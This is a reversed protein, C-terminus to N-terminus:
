EFRVSVLKSVGAEEMTVGYLAKASEMTRKSHTVVIFQTKDSMEDIKNVFRGINAEDLPADVEDLLCFPSPRYKFIGMVLAIASLAKEGGSLLMVSQLRKGPPQAVVEIGADLIDEAELLNMEGKGGGFLEVFFESFNANIKEFADRFRERSRTKIERLAEDASKISDIIDQRQSTLFLFREEVEGLEELALLNVAGYSELRQRLEDLRARGTEYEFDEAFEVTAALEELTQSLEQQCTERLNELRTTVEAQTIELDGRANRAAAANHNLETLNDSMRDASSRATKLKESATVLEEHERAQDEEVLAIKESLATISATTEEIKSETERREFTQRAIRSELEIQEVEIRRLSSVLARGREAAAAATARKESLDASEREVENRIDNLNANIQTLADAALVRSSEAERADFETKQSRERVSQIEQATQEIEDAVVKSHREAREVEQALNKAEIEQAFLDREFGTIETKLAAAKEEKEQLAARTEEVSAETSTVQLAMEVLATTLERIERKFALLSSDEGDNPAKGATFFKGGAILDGDLTVWVGSQNLDVADINGTVWASMERPFVRALTRVFESSVGLYEAINGTPQAPGYNSASLALISVRGINNANLWKTVRIADAETEVLVTQLLPGFLNEVAREAKADVNFKDALTGAFRVGIQEAAGLLKQVPPEYIAYRAELEQLSELRHQSRSHKQQVAHLNKELGQLEARIEETQGAELREREQIRTLAGRAEDIKENLGKARALVEQHTAAARESEVTLGNGREHLKERNDELQRAIEAFREIATTHQFLEVRKTEQQDETERLRTMKIHYRDEAALLEEAERDSETRHTGEEDRLRKVEATVENIRNESVEIDGQLAALREKLGEIQKEQFALERADRDRQLASDAHRARLESLEEEVSRAAQTAGRFSEELATVEGALTTENERAAALKGQLDELQKGFRESEAAFVQGLLGRFEEQMIKYRRTKAAQRRLSNAQREIEDVIDSIRRLNTRATELRVEAARQRTRFKAIGAAEEILARRDAPKASLIQGIRGQEVIAYHAGSLGTGSFLDNIDRLRCAKNNLLYESEGSMYLRRTVSVSEGPAFDLGVHRPRWHRKGYRKITTATGVSAEAVEPATELEPSIAPAAGTGASLAMGNQPGHGNSVPEITQATETPEAATEAAEPDFDELRVANEDYESLTEDIEVLDADEYADDTRVLHLIVEAMGSPQRKATGQFILDKMEDGRLAKARQEGLVWSIADSINSKGCGNPGVVATIGNGTFLVETYDAFSKFGTIELRQLRFM